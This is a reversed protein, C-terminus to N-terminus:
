MTPVGHAADRSRWGRRIARWRTSPTARHAPDLMAALGPAAGDQAPVEPELRRSVERLLAEAGACTEGCAILGHSGLVVVRTEPRRRARIAQALALGPKVHPVHIAGLDGLRSATAGAADARMATAITAVCHTHIVVPAPIVTHLTTEISPRLLSESEGQPMHALASECAPDGHEVAKLLGRRM